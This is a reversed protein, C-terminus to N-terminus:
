QKVSGCGLRSEIQGVRIDFSLKSRNWRRM